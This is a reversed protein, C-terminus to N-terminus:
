EKGMPIFMSAFMALSPYHRKLTRLFEDMHLDEYTGASSERQWMFHELRLEFAQVKAVSPKGDFHCTDFDEGPYLDLFRKRIDDVRWVGDAKCGWLLLEGSWGNDTPAHVFFYVM